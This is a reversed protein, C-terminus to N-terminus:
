GFKRLDLFKLDRLVIELIWCWLDIILFSVLWDKQITLLFKNDWELSFLFGYLKAM